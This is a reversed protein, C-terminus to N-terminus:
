YYLQTKVYSYTFTLYLDLFPAALDSQNVKLNTFIIEPPYIHLILKSFYPNDFTIFADLYRSTKSFADFVANQSNPAQEYTFLFFDAGLPACSTGM